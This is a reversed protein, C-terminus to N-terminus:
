HGEVNGTIATIKGTQKDVAIVIYGDGQGGPGSPRDGRAYYRFLYLSASSTDRTQDASSLIARYQSADAGVAVLDTVGSLVTTYAGGARLVARFSSDPAKPTSPHETVKGDRQVDRATAQVDTANDASCGSLLMGLALMTLLRNMENFRVDLMM